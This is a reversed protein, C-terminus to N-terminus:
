NMFPNEPFNAVHAYKVGLKRIVIKWLNEDKSFVGNSDSPSVFWTNQEIEETLQGESWGSYGIFFKIDDSKIEGKDILSIISEFDGGWFLGKKIEVGGPIKEGLCHIFHLMDQQVPGGFFVPVNFNGINEDVVDQLSIGLPQNLVFGVSGKDDHDALFVVSRKFSPDVMFPESILIMGKKPKLANLM